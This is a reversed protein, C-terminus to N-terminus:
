QKVRKAYLGHHSHYLPVMAVGQMRKIMWVASSYISFLAPLCMGVMSFIFNVSSQQKTETGQYPHFNVVLEVLEFSSVSFSNTETRILENNKMNM